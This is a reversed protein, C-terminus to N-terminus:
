AVIEAETYGQLYLLSSLDGHRIRYPTVAEVKPKARFAVGIGAAELMPIDNAGDGVALVDSNGLHLKSREDELIARKRLSDLIPPIVQGTLAGDAIDLINSHAAHCGLRAAVKDAFVTFGGSILVCRAGNQRMTKVLKEAGPTDTLAAFTEDLKSAPLGKLLAVRETLSAAFDIEGRMARETVAATEEGLGLHAAILDLGEQEILTSDMDACLLKKRRAPNNDQLVADIKQTDCEAALDQLVAAARPADDFFFDVAKDQHLVTSNDAKIKNIFEAPLTREAGAILTLIQTM